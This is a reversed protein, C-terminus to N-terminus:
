PLSIHSRTIHGAIIASVVLNGPLKWHVCDGLRLGGLGIHVDGSLVLLRWMSAVPVNQRAMVANALRNRLNASALHKHSLVSVCRTPTKDTRNHAANWLRWDPRYDSTASEFHSPLTERWMLQAGVRQTARALTAHWSSVTATFIQQETSSPAHEDTVNDYHFNFAHGFNPLCLDGPRLTKEIIKATYGGPGPLSGHRPDQVHGYLLTSCWTDPLKHGQAEDVFRGTQALCTPASSARLHSAFDVVGDAVLVSCVAAQWVHATTSDGLFLARRGRLAGLMFLTANLQAEATWGHLQDTPWQHAWSVVPNNM